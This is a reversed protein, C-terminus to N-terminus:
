VGEEVEVGEKVLGRLWEQEGVGEGEGKVLCHLQEEAAQVAVGEVKVQCTLTAVVVEVKAQSPVAVGVVGVQNEQYEGVVVLGLCVEVRQFPQRPVM